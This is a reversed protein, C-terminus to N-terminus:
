WVSMQQWSVNARHGDPSLEAFLLDLLHNPRTYSELCAIPDCIALEDIFIVSATRKDAGNLLNQSHFLSNLNSLFEM